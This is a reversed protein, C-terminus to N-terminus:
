PLPPPILFWLEPPIGDEPLLAIGEANVPRYGAPIRQFWLTWPIGPERILHIVDPNAAPAAPPLATPEPTPLATPPNTPAETPSHAPLVVTPPPLTAILPVATATPPVATPPPPQPPPPVAGPRAGLTLTFYVAGGDGVAYALGMEVFAPNLLNARHGDSGMWLNFVQVGDVAWVQAANEGVASWAYGAASIRDGATSGDSGSHGLFGNAAMDDSHRQAAAVLVSNMALPGIGAGARAQNVLDLVQWAVPDQAQAPSLTILVALLVAGILSLYVRRRLLRWCM